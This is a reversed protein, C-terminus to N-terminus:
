VPNEKYEPQKMSEDYLTHKIGKRRIGLAEKLNNGKSETVNRMFSFTNRDSNEWIDILDNLLEERLCSNQKMNIYHM